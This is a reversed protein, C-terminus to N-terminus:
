KPAISIASKEVKITIATSQNLAVPMSARWHARQIDRYAALVAVFRTDAHLERKFARTEGPQLIIEEKAVLDTALIDKDREILSLFDAGEFAALTKLEFLRAVVPSPRGRADPNLDPAATLSVQVISPPPPPLVPKACGAALALLAVPLAAYWDIRLNM